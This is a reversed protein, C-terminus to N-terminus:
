LMAKETGIVNLLGGAAALHGKMGIVVDLCVGVGSGKGM